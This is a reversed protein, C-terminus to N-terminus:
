NEPLYFFALYIVVELCFIDIMKAPQPQPLLVCCMPHLLITVQIGFYVDGLLAPLTLSCHFTSIQIHEHFTNIEDGYKFIKYSSTM